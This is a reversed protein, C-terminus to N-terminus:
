WIDAGGEGPAKIREWTGFAQQLVAAASVAGAPGASLLSQTASSLHSLVAGGSLMAAITGPSPPPALTRTRTPLPNRCNTPGPQRPTRSCRSPLFEQTM